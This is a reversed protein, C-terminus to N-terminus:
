DKYDNIGRWLKSLIGNLLICILATGFTIVDTLTVVIIIIMITASVLVNEIKKSM